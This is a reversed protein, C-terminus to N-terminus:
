DVKRGHLGWFQKELWKWVARIEGASKGNPTASRFRRATKLLTRSSRQATGMGSPVVTLNADELTDRMQATQQGRAPVFTFIYAFPKSARRVADATEISPQLDVDRPRTPILTIDAIGVSVTPAEVLLSGAAL